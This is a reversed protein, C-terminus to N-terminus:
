RSALWLLVKEAKLAANDIAPNWQKSSRSIQIAPRDHWTTLTIAEGLAQGDARSLRGAYHPYVDSAPYAANIHFGLWTVSPDYTSGVDVQEVIVDAGGAGDPIVEVLM